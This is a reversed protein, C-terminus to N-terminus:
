PPEPPRPPGPPLTSSTRSGANGSSAWSMLTSTLPPTGWGKASTQNANLVRAVVRSNQTLRVPADGAAKPAGGKAPGEGEGGTAAKAAKAEGKSAAKLEAKAGKIAEKDGSAKADKLAKADAKIEAQQQESLVDLSKFLHERKPHHLVVGDGDVMFPTLESGHRVEDLISGFATAKVRLVVAGIVQGAEDGIAQDKHEEIGVDDHM